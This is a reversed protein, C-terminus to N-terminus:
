SADTRKEDRSRGDGGVIKYDLSNRLFAEGRMVLQNRRTLTNGSTALRGYRGSCGQRRVNTDQVKRSVGMGAM